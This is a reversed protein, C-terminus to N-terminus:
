IRKFPFRRRLAEEYAFCLGNLALDAASYGNAIQEVYTELMLQEILQLSIDESRTEHEM